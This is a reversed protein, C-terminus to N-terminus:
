IVKKIEEAKTEPYLEEYIKKRLALCRVVDLASLENRILNEDIEILKKNATRSVIKATINVANLKKYALLRHYGAILVKDEDIIIPKDTPCVQLAGM